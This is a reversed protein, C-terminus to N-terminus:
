NPSMGNELVVTEAFYRDIVWHIFPKRKWLYNLVQNWMRSGENKFKLQVGRIRESWLKTLNRDCDLCVPVFQACKQKERGIVSGFLEFDIGDVALFDNGLLEELLENSTHEDFDRRRIRWVM